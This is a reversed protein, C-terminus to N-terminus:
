EVDDLINHHKQHCIKCLVVLDELNKYEEGKHEYTRHHVNLSHKNACLSCQHSVEICAYSAEFSTQNICSKNTKMMPALGRPKRPLEGIVQM